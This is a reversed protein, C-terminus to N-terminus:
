LYEHGTVLGIAGARGITCWIWIDGQYGYDTVHDGSVGSLGRKRPCRQGSGSSVDIYFVYCRIEAFMSRGVPSLASILPDQKVLGRSGSTSAGEPHVAM